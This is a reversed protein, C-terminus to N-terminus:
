TGAAMEEVRATPAISARPNGSSKLLQPSVYRFLPIRASPSFNSPATGSPPTVVLLPVLKAVGITEPITAKSNLM